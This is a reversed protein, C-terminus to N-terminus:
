WKTKNYINVCYGELEGLPLATHWIRENNM